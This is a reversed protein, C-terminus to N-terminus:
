NDVWKSALLVFEELRQLELSFHAVMVDDGYYAYELLIIRIKSGIKWWKTFLTLGLYWATFDASNKVENQM